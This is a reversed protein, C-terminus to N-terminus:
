ENPKVNLKLALIGRMEIRSRHLQIKVNSESLDLLAAIEKVPMDEQYYLNIIARSQPPLLQLSQELIESEDLDGARTNNVDGPIEKVEDFGVQIVKKKRVYDIARLYAIKMLWQPFKSEDKLNHLNRYCKLFVDQSAEEAEERNGIIRFCMTFVKHEFLQILSQFHTSSGNKKIASIHDRFDTM